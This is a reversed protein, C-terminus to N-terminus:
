YQEIFDIPNITWRTVDSRTATSQPVYPTHIKEGRDRDIQLHLHPKACNGSCGVAAIMQGVDVADDKKVTVANLHGYISYVRERNPLLHRITVYLGLGASNNEVSEVTGAAIARVPTGTPLKYDIAPHSLNVFEGSDLDYKGMYRTSYFLKATLLSRDKPSASAHLSSIPIQLAAIDYTPPAVFEKTDMACYSRSFQAETTMAGWDPTAGFPSIACTISGPPQTPVAIVSAQLGGYGAQASQLKGLEDQWQDRVQEGLHQASFAMVLTCLITWLISRPIPKKAWSNAFAIPM